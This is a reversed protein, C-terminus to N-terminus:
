QVMNPGTKRLLLVFRGLMMNLDSQDIRGDDNLDGRLYAPVTVVISKAISGYQV